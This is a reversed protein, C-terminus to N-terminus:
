QLIYLNSLAFDTSPSTSSRGMSYAVGLNRKRMWVSLMFRTTANNEVFIMGYEQLARAIIKSAWNLNLTDLDLDPDLQLRFGLWLCCERDCYGDNPTECPYVGPSNRKAQSYAFALAHNIYGKNVVEDYTILGHLLPVPAVRASGNMDYPSNIGDSSLDWRRFTRSSWHGDSHKEAGWFDWAYSWDHSVIVMHADNESAPQADPPIPVWYWEQPQNGQPSSVDVWQDPTDEGAIWIPVSWERYSITLIESNSLIDQVFEESTCTGRGLIEPTNPIKEYWTSQEKFFHDPFSQVNSYTSSLEHFLDSEQGTEDSYDRYPDIKESDFTGLGDSSNLDKNTVGYTTVSDENAAGELFVSRWLDPQGAESAESDWQFWTLSICLILLWHFANPPSYRKLINAIRTFIPPQDFKNM